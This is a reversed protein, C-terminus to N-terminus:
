VAAEGYEVKYKRLEYVSGFGKQYAEKKEADRAKIRAKSLEQAEKRDEPNLKFSLAADTDLDIECEEGPYYLRGKTNDFCQKECIATVTKGM